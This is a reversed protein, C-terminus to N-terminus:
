RLAHHHDRFNRISSSRPGRHRLGIRRRPRHRAHHTPWTPYPSNQGRHATAIFAWKNGPGAFVIDRPEDGVQLTRVVDRRAPCTSSASATPSTTSWGSRRAACPLPSRSSGSAARIRDPDHRQEQARLDRPTSDPTNAAYLTKGDASMAMPRVPDSEFLTYDAAMATVAALLLALAASVLLAAIAFRRLIRTRAPHTVKRQHSCSACPIDTAPPSSAGRHEWKQSRGPHLNVGVRGRYVVGTGENRRADPMSTTGKRPKLRWRSDPHLSLALIDLM